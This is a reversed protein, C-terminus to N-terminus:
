LCDILPDCGSSTCCPEPQRFCVRSSAMVASREPAVNMVPLPLRAVNLPSSPPTLIPMWILHTLTWPFYIDYMSSLHLPRKPHRESGIM